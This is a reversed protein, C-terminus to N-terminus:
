PRPVKAVSLTTDRRLLGVPHRMLWGSENLWIGM